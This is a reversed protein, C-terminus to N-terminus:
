KSGQIGGPPWARNADVSRIAALQGRGGPHRDPLLEPLVDRGGEVPM